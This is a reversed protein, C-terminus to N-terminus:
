PQFNYRRPIDDPVHGGVLIDFLIVDGTEPDVGVNGDHQDLSWAVEPQLQVAADLMHRFTADVSANHARVEPDDSTEAMFGYYAAAAKPWDDLSDYKPMRYVTGGPVYGYVEIAPIHRVGQKHLEVLIDRAGDNYDDDIFTYVMGDPGTYVTASAGYGLKTLPLDDISALLPAPWHRSAVPTTYQPSLARRNRRLNARLRTYITGLQHKEPDEVDEPGESWEVQSPDIASDADHYVMGYDVQTISWKDKNDAYAMITDDIKAQLTRQEEPDTVESRGGQRLLSVVSRVWGAFIPHSISHSTDGRYFQILGAIDERKLERADLLWSAEIDPSANDIIRRLLRVGTPAKTGFVREMRTLHEPDRRFSIYRRDIEATARASFPSVGHEVDALLNIRRADVYINYNDRGVTGWVLPGSGHFYVTFPGELHGRLLGRLTARLGGPAPPPLKTSHRM